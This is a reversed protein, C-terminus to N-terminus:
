FANEIHDIVPPNYRLDIFIADFRCERNQIKHIYLYGEAARRLKECKAPTIRFHVDGYEMGRQMKVEVFVLCGKDEAVIDIEGYRGFHFNRSVIRYGKAELYQCAIDEGRKGVEVPTKV